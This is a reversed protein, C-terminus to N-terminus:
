KNFTIHKFAEMGLGLGLRSSVLLLHLNKVGARSSVACIRAARVARRRILSFEVPATEEYCAHSM